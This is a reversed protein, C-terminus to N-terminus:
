ATAAAWPWCCHSGRSCRMMAAVNACAVILLLSVAAGLTSVIIGLGLMAVVIASGLKQHHLARWASHVDSGIM